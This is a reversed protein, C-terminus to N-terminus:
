PTLLVTVDGAAFTAAVLDVTDNADLRAAHVRVAPSPLPKSAPAGFTGDGLGSWVLLEPLADDVAAVDLHTDADLDAVAITFPRFPAAVDVAGAVTFGGNGDGTALVLRAPTTREVALVDLDGDEDFDGLQAVWPRVQPAVFTPGGFQGSKSGFVRLFGKQKDAEFILADAFGDGDLQGILMSGPALGLDLIVGVDTHVPAFFSGDGANPRLSLGFETNMNKWWLWLIDGDGDADADAITNTRPTNLNAFLKWSVFADGQWRFIRVKDGPEAVMVETGAAGDLDGIVPFASQGTLGPDIAPMFTGDGLGRSLRGVVGDFNDHGMVLLDNLGDGDFDSVELALPTFVQERGTTSGEGTDTDGTTGDTTEGTTETSTSTTSPESTSTTSTTTTTTDTTSTPDVTTSTPDVTTSTPPLTTSTTLDATTSTMVGTSGTAGTADTTAAPDPCAVLLLPSLRLPISVHM